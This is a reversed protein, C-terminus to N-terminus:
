LFLRHSDLWGVTDDDSLELEDEWDLVATPSASGEESMVALRKAATECGNRLRKALTNQPGLAIGDRARSEDM